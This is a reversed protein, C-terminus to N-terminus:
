DIVDECQEQLTAQNKIKKETMPAFDFQQQLGSSCDTNVTSESLVLPLYLICGSKLKFDSFASPLRM